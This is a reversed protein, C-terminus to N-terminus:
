LVCELSSFLCLSINFSFFFLQLLFPEARESFPTSSFENRRAGTPRTLMAALMLGHVKVSKKNQMAYVVAM